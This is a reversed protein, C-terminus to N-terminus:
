HICLKGRPVHVLRLSNRCRLFPGDLALDELWYKSSCNGRCICHHILLAVRRVCWRSCWHSTTQASRDLCSDAIDLTPDPPSRVEPGYLWCVGIWGYGFVSNYVFIAAVATWQTAPTPNPLGIMAVFVVMCVTLAVASWLLVARRGVREITFVLPVTGAAFLTNM